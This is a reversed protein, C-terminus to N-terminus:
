NFTAVYKRQTTVYDIKSEIQLSLNIDRCMNEVDCCLNLLASFLIDYCKERHQSM